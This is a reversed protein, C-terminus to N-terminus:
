EFPARRGPNEVRAQFPLGHSSVVGADLGSLAYSERAWSWARTRSFTAVNATLTTFRM